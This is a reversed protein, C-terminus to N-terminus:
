VAPADCECPKSSKARVVVASDESSISTKGYTPTSGRRVSSVDQNQEYEYCYLIADEEVLPFQRRCEQDLYSNPSESGEAVNIDLQPDDGSLSSKDDRHHRFAHFDNSHLHPDPSINSFYFAIGGDSHVTPPFAHLGLL